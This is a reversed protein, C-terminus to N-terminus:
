VMQLFIYEELGIELTQGSLVAIGTRMNDSSTHKFRVFRFMRNECSMFDIMQRISPSQFQCSWNLIWHRRKSCLM